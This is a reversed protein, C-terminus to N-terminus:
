CFVRLRRLEGLQFQTLILRSSLNDGCGRGGATKYGQGKM